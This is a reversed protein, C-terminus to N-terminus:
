SVDAGRVTLRDQGFRGSDRGSDAVSGGGRGGGVEAGRSARAGEGRQVM